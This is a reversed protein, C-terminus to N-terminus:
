KWSLFAHLPAIRGGTGSDTTLRMARRFVSEAELIATGGEYELEFRRQVPSTKRALVILRGDAEEFRWEGKLASPKVVRLSRGPLELMGQETTWKFMIAAVEEPASGRLRFNWSCLGAPMCSIM